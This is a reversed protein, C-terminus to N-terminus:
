EKEREREEEKERRYAKEERKELLIACPALDNM